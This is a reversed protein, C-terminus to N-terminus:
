SAGGAQISLRTEISNGSNRVVGPRVFLGKSQLRQQLSILGAEDHLKLDVDLRGSEYHLASISGAPLASLAGAAQDLLSLFDADDALGAAHRLTAINRQMQLPPNVVVSTEGFTKLFTREMEQTALDKQHNLLGWEINAGLTEIFIASLLIFAVPRFKPLWERLKTKPALSGWLLNVTDHPIPETRWDWPEGPILTAPLAPWLPLEQQSAEASFRIQLNKPPSPLASNLSLVLAIPPQQEDGHDLAIGSTAGTRMFGKNGDWVIVWTDPPLDPLLMEPVARRLPINASNCAAVIIQLWEKEVIFLSRQGSHQTAGPVVHNEEPDTLTYEEAVFPLAAEWRRKSQAPMQVNVCMLRASSIIAIYEDAKPLATLLANGSQLVIGTDDCLAWPCPSSSDHWAASFYIRLKM